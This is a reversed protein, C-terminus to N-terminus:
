KFMREPYFYDGCGNGIKSNGVDEFIGDLVRLSKDLCEVEYEVFGHSYSIKRGRGPVYQDYEHAYYEGPIWRGKKCTALEFGIMEGGEWGLKKMYAEVEVLVKDRFVPSAKLKPIDSESANRLDGMYVNDMVFSSGDKRTIKIDVFVKIM